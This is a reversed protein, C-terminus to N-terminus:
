IGKKLAACYIFPKFASGSQVKATVERNYPSQEFDRGGVMALIFGTQVDMCILAGEIKISKIPHFM